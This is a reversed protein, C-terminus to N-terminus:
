PPTIATDTIYSADKVLMGPNSELTDLHQWDVLDETPARQPERWSSRPIQRNAFLRGVSGLCRRCSALPRADELFELLRNLFQPDASIEIGEGVGAMAEVALPLFLSQPCRYLRGRWITHCRWTNAMQCTRYIREVLGDDSTGIESYSERFYDFHKFKLTVGHEKAARRTADAADQCLERGPYVSVSVEDVADWFGQPAQSLRLGNTIVRITDCVGSERIASLATTIEPHLLPEGGLVRAESAHSLTALDRGLQVPDALASRQVPALYACARCRLNCHHFVVVELGDTLVRGDVVGYPGPGRRPLEARWAHADDPRPPQRAAVSRGEM